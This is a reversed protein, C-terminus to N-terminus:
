KLTARYHMLETLCRSSRYEVPTGDLGFAVRDIQLLPTGIRCGLHKKDDAEAAVAKLQEDVRAVTQGYTKGFLQYLNNPLDPRAGLDPFLSKPVAVTELM